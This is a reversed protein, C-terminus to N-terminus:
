GHAIFRRLIFEREVRVQGNMLMPLLWDRLSTLKQNLIKQSKAPADACKRCASQSFGTPAVAETLIVPAKRKEPTPLNQTGM